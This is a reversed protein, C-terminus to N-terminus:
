NIAKRKAALLDRTDRLAVLYGYHWYLREATGADLHKQEEVSEPGNDEIWKTLTRIRTEIAALPDRSSGEDTGTDPWPKM